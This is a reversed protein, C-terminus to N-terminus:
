VFNQQLIEFTCIDSFHINLFEKRTCIYNRILLILANRKEDYIHLSFFLQHLM